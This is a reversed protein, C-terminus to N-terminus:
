PGGQDDPGPGTVLGAVYLKRLINRYLRARHFDVLAANGECVKDILADITAMVVAAPNEAAVAAIAAHLAPLDDRASM